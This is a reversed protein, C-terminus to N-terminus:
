LREVTWALGAAAIALSGPIVVFRRYIEANRSLWGVAAFAAVIVALQGLEVGANFAILATVFDQPPLGLELLVGGFGLGHLLGFAFVIIVRWPHLARTVLNEIGVYAISVAILPEVVSAPVAVLGHISLGLTITHAVTFATVQWLLPRWRISLLFLGIVFLIHDAGLPVIHTFGLVIYDAIVDKLPRPALEAVIGVPPSEAGDTLWFSTVTDDSAMRLRVVADGFRAPYRASATSAGAPIAATYRIISLRADRVDGVPPVDIGAFSLEAARGGFNLKLSARYGPEFDTFASALAAPELARLRNYADAQPADESDTHQPGIGSIMAEANAQVSVRAENGPGFVIDVIAPRLTHAPVPM